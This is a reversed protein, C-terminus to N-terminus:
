GFAAVAQEETDYLPLIMDFGAMRFIKRVAPNLNCLKMDGQQRRARRVALLLTRLGTSSIYTVHQFDVVLRHLNENALNQLEAELYQSGSADLRGRPVVVTIGHGHRSPHSSVARRRRVMILENWGEDDFRFDVQDMLRRMFYLGLGGIERKELPAAIDPETVLTPDFPRGQDRLTIILDEGRREAIVEIPGEQAQYAHEIINTVAEDVAMQIYYSEHETMGFNATVNGIFEAIRALNEPRSTVDLVYRDNVTM